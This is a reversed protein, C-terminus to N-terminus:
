WCGRAVPFHRGTCAGGRTARSTPACGQYDDVGASALARGQNEADEAGPALFSEGALPRPYVLAQQRLDVWSWAVLLGLPFRSEVRLRGPRLWGRRETPHFLLM